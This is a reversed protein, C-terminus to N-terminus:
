IAQTSSRVPLYYARAHGRTGANPAMDEECLRRSVDDFTICAREEFEELRLRCVQALLSLVM